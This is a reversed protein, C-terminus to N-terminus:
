ENVNMKIDYGRVKVFPMHESETGRVGRYEFESNESIKVKTTFKSENFDIKGYKTKWDIRLPLTEDTNLIINGYKSFIDLHTFSASTHYIRVKDDYGELIDFSTKLNKFIYESYKSSTTELSVLHDIYYNDDYSTSINVIGANKFRYESYKSDRITLDGIDEIEIDSDYINMKLNGATNSKLDSYKTDITINGTSQFTMKDEYGEIELIGTYEIKIDSYKSKIELDNTREAIFNCEYVDMETPGLASFEM